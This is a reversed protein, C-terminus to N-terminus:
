PKAQPQKAFYQAVPSGPPAWAKAKAFWADREGLEGLQQHAMALNMAQESREQLNDSAILPISRGYAGVAERYRGSHLYSYALERALWPDEPNRKVGDELVPVAKGAQNLANYAFALEFALGKLTPQSRFLPELVQVARECEGIHNLHFGRRLLHEATAQDPVYAARFAPRGELGLDKAIGEPLPAAFFDKQLRIKFSAKSTDFTPDLIARGEPDLRFAGGLHSTFGAQEDLYVCAFLYSGKGSGPLVVWRNEHDFAKRDFAFARFGPLDEGEAPGGRGQNPGGAQRETRTITGDSSCKYLGDKVMVFVDVAGSLIAAAVDVESPDALDLHSHMLGVAKAGAPTGPMGEDSLTWLARHLPTLKFPLPTSPRHTLIFDQGLVVAGATNRRSMRYLTAGGGPEPVSM